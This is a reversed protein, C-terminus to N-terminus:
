LIVDILSVLSAMKEAKSALKLSTSKIKKSNGSYFEAEINDGEYLESTIALVDQITIVSSGNLKTLVDDQKVGLNAFTSNPIVTTIHVGTKVSFNNQMAISDTLTQMMIGLLGKRKLIQAELINQALLM